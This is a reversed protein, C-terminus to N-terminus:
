SPNDITLAPVLRHRGGEFDSPESDEQTQKWLWDLELYRAWAEGAKVQDVVGPPRESPECERVRRAGLEATRRQVYYEEEWRKWTQPRGERGDTDRQWPRGSLGDFLVRRRVRFVARRTTALYRLTQVRMM